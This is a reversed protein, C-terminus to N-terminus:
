PTKPLVLLPKPATELVQPPEGHLRGEVWYEGPAVVNGEKDRQDWTATFTLVEDPNLTRAELILLIDAEHLWRWVETGDSDSVVFDHAPRGGLFFELPHDCLNKLKLTLAVREGARVESMPELKLSLCPPGSAEGSAESSGHCASQSVVPGGWCLLTAVIVITVRLM